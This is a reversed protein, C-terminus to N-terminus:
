VSVTIHNQHSPLNGDSGLDSEDAGADLGQSGGVLSGEVATLGQCCVLGHGFGGGGGSAQNAPQPHGAHRNTRGHPVQRNRLQFESEGHQLARYYMWEEVLRDSVPLSSPKPATGGKREGDSM